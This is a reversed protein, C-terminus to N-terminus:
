PVFVATAQIPVIEYESATPAAKLFIHPVQLELRATVTGAVTDISVEPASHLTGPFDTQDVLENVVRQAGAPHLRMEGTELLHGTDIIQSADAVIMALQRNGRRQAMHIAATDVAIGGLLVLILIWAPILILASGRDPSTTAGYRRSRIQRLDPLTLLRRM